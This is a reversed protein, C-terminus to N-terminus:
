NPSVNEEFNWTCKKLLNIQDENIETSCILRSMEIIATLFQWVPDDYDEFLDHALCSHLGECVNFYNLENLCSAKNLGMCLQPNIYINKVFELYNVPNREEAKNLDIQHSGLNDGLVAILSGRFTVSSGNITVIIGTDELEKLYRILSPKIIYQKKSFIKRKYNSQFTKLESVINNSSMANILENKYESINYDTCIQTIKQINAANQNNLVEMFESILFNIVKDTISYECKLKLITNAFSFNAINNMNKKDNSHSIYTLTM